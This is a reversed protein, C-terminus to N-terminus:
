NLVQCGSFPEMLDEGRRQYPRDLWAGPTAAEVDAHGGGVGEDTLALGVGAALGIGDGNGVQEGGLLFMMVQGRVLEDVVLGSAGALTVGIDVLGGITLGLQHRGQDVILLATLAERGVVESQGRIASRENAGVTLETVGGAMRLAALTAVEAERGLLASATGQNIGAAVVFDRGLVHTLDEDAVM